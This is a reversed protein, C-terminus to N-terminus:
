DDLAMTIYRGYLINAEINSSIEDINDCQIIYMLDSISYALHKCYNVNSSESLLMLNLKITKIIEKRM